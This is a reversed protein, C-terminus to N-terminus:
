ALYLRNAEEEKEFDGFHAFFLNDKKLNKKSFKTSKEM